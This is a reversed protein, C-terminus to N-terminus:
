SIKPYRPIDISIKKPRVGLHINTQLTCNSTVHQVIRTLCALYHTYYFVYHTYYDKTLQVHQSLFQDLWSDRENLLM